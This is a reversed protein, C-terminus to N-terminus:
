TGEWLELPSDKKGRQAELPELHEKAQPQMLGIEEMPKQTDRRQIDSIPSKDNSKSGM